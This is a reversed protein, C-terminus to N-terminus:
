GLCYACFLGLVGDNRLYNPDCVENTLQQLTTKPTVTILCNLKHKQFIMSFDHFKIILERNSGLSLTIM